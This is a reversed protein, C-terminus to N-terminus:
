AGLMRRIGALFADEAAVQRVTLGARILATEYLSAVAPPAVLTVAAVAGLRAAAGAIEAGILVGSLFAGVSSPALRGALCETRARFITNAIGAEGRSADLGRLFADGDTVQEPAALRGVIGHALCMAHLEGTLFTAFRTVAGGSMAVWKSHTGPLCVVGDTAAGLALTEEGRIVEFAGDPWECCIGPIIEVALHGIRHPTAAPRLADLPLPCRLYAAEHWANRGGAMGAVVLRSTASEDLWGGCLERLAASFAEHGSLGAAGRSSAVHGHVAGDPSLWWARLRSSGWDAALIRGSM